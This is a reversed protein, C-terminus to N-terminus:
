TRAASPTSVRVAFARLAENVADAAEILSFHGCDPIVALEAQPVLKQVAEMFPTTMGHQLPARKLRADIFTSQLVLVPVDIQRLTEEGRLPDWGVAEVYLNRGFTPNMESVRQLIRKRLQSDVDDSFMAGFHRQAFAAFGEADIADRARKILTDRDAPYFAGEIFVMGIINTRSEAFAERIVKAGLSHGVLIVQDADSERKARNVQAGLASLSPEGAADSQGHGPLDLAVCRFSSSLAAFQAKWDDLSCGFGHVFLFTPQGKGAVHVHLPSGADTM